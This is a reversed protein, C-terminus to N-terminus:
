PTTTVSANRLPITSELARYRYNTQGAPVTWNVAVSPTQLVSFLSFSPNASSFAAQESLPARVVIAVRIAKISRLATNATANGALLGAPSYDYTTGGIVVAAKATTWTLTGTSAPDVGYVARLTIIDDSVKQVSLDSNLLDVSYMTGYNATDSPDAVGYVMFSPTTGMGLGAVSGSSYMSLTALGVSGPNVPLVINTNNQSLYSPDIQTIMCEAVSGGFLVWESPSFGVGSTVQAQTGSLIKTIPAPTEGYGAAGLMMLLVDSGGAAATPYIVAPVLRLKTVAAFPAALGVVGDSIIAHGTPKYNLACGYSNTQVLGTGSSRLLGDLRYLGFNGSQLADNTATTTRKHGEFSATVKLAALVLVLGIVIAVMLEILSYGRLHRSSFSNGPKIKM